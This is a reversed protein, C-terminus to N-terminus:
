LLSWIKVSNDVIRGGFNMSSGALNSSPDFDDSSKMVDRHSEAYERASSDSSPEKRQGSSTVVVTGSPHVGTGTVATDHATWKWSCKVEGEVMGAGEWIKVIGDTGGAWIECGSRGGDFVEVALRQNTDAARDGLWGVLKGTVRVDYILVGNSKREVVFLYRGCPSWLVQSVGSGCIKADADAAEHINWTAVTGGIGEADYLGISRTWTGAALLRSEGDSQPQMSLASVIGRMGVGGGKMKHRKSPITPLRVVPGEGSVSLDFLSILCSTGTLFQTGAPSFILSAPTQYSETTPSVLPYSAIIKSEPDLVNTLRIPHDRIASLLLTTSSEHLAFFPYPALSYVPEANVMSTYPKLDLPESHDSLLDTPAIFTRVVNDASNTLISTGDPSWQATKFYDDEAQAELSDRVKPMRDVNEVLPTRPVRELARSEAISRSYVNGTSAVLQPIKVGFDM